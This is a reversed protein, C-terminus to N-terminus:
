PRPKFHHRQEVSVCLLWKHTVFLNCYHPFKNERKTCWWDQCEGCDEIRVSDSGTMVNNIRRLECRTCSPTTASDYICSHGWRHYWLGLQSLSTNACREPYDNIILDLYCVSQHLWKDKGYYRLRPAELEQVEILLQLLM